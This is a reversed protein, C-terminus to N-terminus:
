GSRTHEQEAMLREAWDVAEQMNRCRQQNGTQIHQVQVRYHGPGNGPEKVVRLLFSYVLPEPDM